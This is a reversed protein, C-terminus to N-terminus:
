WTANMARAVANQHDPDVRNTEHTRSKYFHICFHGNFNNGSITSTGHPMGNMSAAYVHGNYKVLIARRSWSWSGGYISKMTATDAATKPEADIHNAGAWRRVTFVRGTAVDKIQFTAGRPIKNAGGNFWDLRETKYEKEAPKPTATAKPNKGFLARITGAGAVGDQSLGKAKQFAKVAKVTQDGYSSDITSNYYGKLTLAQQLAKVDAGKDGKKSTAPVAIDSIKTIGEMGKKVAPKPTATPKPTAAPKATTVSSPNKGFLAKITGAGAIGDRSLGKSKQFALVANKTNNGYDGDITTNYFGKLTLAQQLAKVNQGKDGPKSTGPVPIDSISDIGEMGARKSVPKPTATAKVTAKPTATAKAPSSAPNKGFLAKITGAGAIGDQTLGEDKQFAKVAKETNYGFDSDITTNYYGKLTLAQQLAKVDPGKDGKKSTAPVKIDDMDKIGEMGARNSYNKNAVSGTSSGNLAKQASSSLTVFKKMVYGNKGDAEVKYFDGSTGTVTVKDGKDFRGHFGGSAQPRTRFFVSDENVTGTYSAAFATSIGIFLLVLACAFVKLANKKKM